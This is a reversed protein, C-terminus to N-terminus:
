DKFANRGNPAQCLCAMRLTSAFHRIDDIMGGIGNCSQCFLAVGYMFICDIGDM